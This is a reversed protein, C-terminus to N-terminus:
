FVGRFSAFAGSRMPQVDFGTAPRTAKAAASPPAEHSRTTAFLLAAVGLAAGGVGFSVDAGIYLRRIHDVSSPQCSPSCASLADNDTKGWYTLLAGAGLGLLGVGGLVWTFASPGGGTASAPPADHAPSSPEGAPKDDSKKSEEEAADAARAPASSAAATEQPEGADPSPMTVAVPVRQGQAITVTRTTSVERGPWRGVRATFSLAHDGPEVALERGDLRATLPQEDIKVQVDVLPAGADDTVSLVILALESRVREAGAACKRQLGGCTARACQLFLERAERAQGSRQHEQASTYASTCARAPASGKAATSTVSLAVALASAGAVSM